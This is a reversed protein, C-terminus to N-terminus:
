NTKSTLIVPAVAQVPTSEEQKTEVTLGEQPVEVVESGGTGQQTEATKQSSSVVTEQSVETDEINENTTEETPVEKSVPTARARRAKRKALHFQRPMTRNIIKLDKMTFDDGFEFDYKSGVKSIRLKIM